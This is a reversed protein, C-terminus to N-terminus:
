EGQESSQADVTARLIARLMIPDMERLHRCTELAEQVTGEMVDDEGEYTIVYHGLEQAIESVEPSFDTVREANNGMILSRERLSENDLSTNGSRYAYFM